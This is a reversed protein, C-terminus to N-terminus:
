PTAALAPISSSADNSGLQNKGNDGWCWVQGKDSLACTHHLGAAVETIFPKPEAFEVSTPLQADDLNPNGIKGYASDGWCKVEGLAEVACVHVAGVALSVPDDLGDVSNATSTGDGDNGLQGAVDDGWCWVKNKGEKAVLACTFDEGAQLQIPTGSVFAVKVSDGASSPPAGGLAQNADNGWCRISEHDAACAHHDGAAVLQAAIHDSVEARVPEEVTTGQSQPDGCEHSTDNGWCYVDDDVIACAHETGASVMSAPDPLVVAAVYANHDEPTNYGLQSLANLGWCTAGTPDLACSFEGGATISLAATYDGDEETIATGPIQTPPGEVGAGLQGYLNDGWCHVNSAGPQGALLCTHRYGAALRRVPGPDGGASGGSGGSGGGSGGASGGASGGSGNGGAGGRGGVVAGGEGGGGGTPDVEYDVVGSVFQCSTLLLLGLLPSWTPVAM